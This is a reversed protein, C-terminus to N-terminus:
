TIFYIFTKYKDLDGIVTLPLGGNCVILDWFILYVFSAFWCESEGM